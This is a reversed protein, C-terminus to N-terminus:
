FLAVQATNNQIKPPMLFPVSTKLNHFSHLPNKNTPPTWLICSKCLFARFTYFAKLTLFLYLFKWIIGTKFNGLRTLLLRLIHSFHRMILRLFELNLNATSYSKLHASSKFYSSASTIFQFADQFFFDKFLRLTVLFFKISSAPHSPIKIRSHPESFVPNAIFIDTFSEPM